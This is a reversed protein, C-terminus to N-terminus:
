GWCEHCCGSRGVVVMMTVVMVPVVMVAIVAIPGVIMVPVIMVAVIAVPGVIV